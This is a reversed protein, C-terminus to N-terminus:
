FTTVTTTLDASVMCESGSAPSVANCSPTCSTELTFGAARWDAPPADHIRISLIGKDSRMPTASDYLTTEMVNDDFLTESAAQDGEGKTRKVLCKVWAQWGQGAGPTEPPTYVLGHSVRLEVTLMELAQGAEIAVDATSFFPGDKSNAGGGAINVDIAKLVPPIDSTEAYGAAEVAAVAEGDTYADAALAYGAAEVAAVAEGDTYAEAVLAYPQLKTALEADEVYLELTTDLATQDVKLDLTDGAESMALELATLREQ